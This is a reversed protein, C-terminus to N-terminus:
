AITITSVAIDLDAPVFAQVSCAPPIAGASFSVTIQTATSNFTVQHATNNYQGSSVPPTNGSLLADGTHPVSSGVQQEPTSKSFRFTLANNIRLMGISGAGTNGFTAAGQSSLQIFGGGQLFKKKDDASAFTVTFSAGSGGAYPFGPTSPITINATPSLIGKINYRATQAAAVQLANVTESYLRSLTVLGFRRNSRRELSPYRPSTDPLTLLRSDVQTGDTVFPVPSIGNVLTPPLELRMIAVRAADLLMDWDNSTPDVLLERQADAGGSSDTGTTVLVNNDGDYNLKIQDDDLTVVDPYAYSTSGVILPIENIDAGGASLPGIMLNVLSKVYEFEERGAAIEVNPWIQSWGGNNGIANFIYLFGSAAGTKKFWLDGINPEPPAVDAVEVGGITKWALNETAATGDVCVNLQKTSFKYWLQGMTPKNPPNDSAFNELMHMMNEQQVKGYNSLGKGTFAVSASTTNLSAVAVNIPATKEPISPNTWNLIYAM